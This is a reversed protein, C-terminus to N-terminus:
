LEKIWRGALRIWPQVEPYEYERGAATDTATSWDGRALGHPGNPFVHLEFPRGMAAMAAAFDLSNRVPVVNDPATHWLFTPPTDESVQRELSLLEMLDPDDYKEGLLRRFSGIHTPKGDAPSLIVPYSLVMGDPRHEGQHFGLADKIFDRNWLTGLSAALHGGASFGCVFIRNPDTMWEEARERIMAVSKALELLSAPFRSTERDNSVSYWLIFCNFGQELFGLAIPEAERTSTFEYGGGPCILVAPRAQLPSRANYPVYCDMYPVYEGTKDIGLAKYDIEIPIKKCLM